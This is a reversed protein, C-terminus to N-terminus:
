NAIDDCIFEAHINEECCLRRALEIAKPDFDVGYARYGLKAFEIAFTGISCGVDVFIVDNAGKHKLRPLAYQSVLRNALEVRIKWHNTHRNRYKEALQIQYEEGYQYSTAKPKSAVATQM